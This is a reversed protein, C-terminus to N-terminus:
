NAQLGTLFSNALTLNGESFNFPILTTETCGCTSKLYLYINKKKSIHSCIATVSVKSCLEVLSFMRIHSTVLFLHPLYKHTVLSCVKRKM